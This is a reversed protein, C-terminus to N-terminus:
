VIDYSDWKDVRRKVASRRRVTGVTESTRLQEFTLLSMRESDHSATCGDGRGERM